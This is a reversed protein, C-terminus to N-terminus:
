INSQLPSHSMRENRDDDEARYAAIADNVDFFFNEVGMTDTIGCRKLQDRVSGLAGAVYLEIGRKKLEDIIEQITHLGTSDISNIASADLIFLDLKDGKEEIHSIITEKFHEVNAFYLSSDFRYILIDADIKAETYRKINRFNNTEGLRGLEAQHPKTSSYIVVILSIVVGALIGEEIGIFLTVLFTLMLMSFDRRDTKWLFEIEKLDFLSAVALIIIAALVAMPLYYFLPTLFMVTVAVLLASFVSAITTTAGSQDNVATRSFGGTTPFSQFFSGVLNAAGLGILEQNADIRYGRKTAMSKAIAISEMFSILAIALITPWLISIDNASVAVSEFAPLGSPISGVINLGYNQLDFLYATFIGLVVVTLAAPFNSKWRKLLKMLIISGVGIVSTIVSIDSFDSIVTWLIEHVDSGRQVPLGFLNGIQSAAIIVAAASVFGSLVPHSLFNVLFGARMFGMALQIVGVGLAAFIALQIYRATGPEAHQGVGALILLSLLAVPGFGLQRSTGFLAYVLIPVISAYLGYVPPLGALVAYAMGQPILMIAVTVGAILDGRFTDKDYDRLTEVIPIFRIIHRFINFL